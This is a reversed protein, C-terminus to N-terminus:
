DARPAKKVVQGAWEIEGADPAQEMDSQPPAVPANSAEANSAETEAPDSGQVGGVDDTVKDAADAPLAAKDAAAHEPSRNQPV